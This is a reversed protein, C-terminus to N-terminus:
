QLLEYKGRMTQQLIMRYMWIMRCRFLIREDYGIKTGLTDITVCASGTQISEKSLIGTSSSACDHRHVQM